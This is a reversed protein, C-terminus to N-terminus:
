GFHNGPASRSRDQSCTPRPIRFITAISPGYAKADDIALGVLDTLKAGDGASGDAVVIKDLTIPNFRYVYLESRM